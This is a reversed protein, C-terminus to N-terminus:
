SAEELTPVLLTEGPMPALESALREGPLTLTYRRILSGRSGPSTSVCLGDTVAALGTVCLARLTGAVYAEARPPLWMRIDNASFTRGHRAHELVIRSARPIDWRWCADELGLAQILDLADGAADLGNPRPAARDAITLAAEGEAVLNDAARIRDTFM